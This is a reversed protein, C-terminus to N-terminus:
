TIKKLFVDRAIVPNFRAQPLKTGYVGVMVLNVVNCCYFGKYVNKEDYFVHRIFNEFFGYTREYKANKGM